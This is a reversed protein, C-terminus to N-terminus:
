IYIVTAPIIDFHQYFYIEDEICGVADLDISSYRFFDDPHLVMDLESSHLSRALLKVLFNSKMLCAISVDNYLNFDNM